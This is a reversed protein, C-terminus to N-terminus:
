LFDLYKCEREAQEAYVGRMGPPLLRAMQGMVEDVMEERVERGPKGEFRIRFPRGARIYFPTRRLRKINKWINEGGYHAVPLIPVDGELALQVIGAKGQRLVGNKSRTGEPAVIVFFGNDVAEHARRFAEGFARGRDIPIARYTNFLFAFFPNDWTESKALGTVYRPYGYSVLLPVELFNIHNVALLMPKNKSLAKRLERSDVKCLTGLIGKLMFSVVTRRIRGGLGM